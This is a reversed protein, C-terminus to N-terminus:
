RASRVTAPERVLGELLEAARGPGPAANLKEALRRANERYQPNSLVEALAARLGAPTCRTPSLRVGVGAEVVRQANDPKDWTTPVVVLPVGARLAAMVTAPGGTTVVAACRPLMDTHSLWNRVRINPALEGLGLEDVSRHHGTTMIVEMPLGALGQAAARLIFPDGYRLTSETVHVWPYRSPITNLWEASSPDSPPHWICPGVYQVNSPIDRRGYDLEPINGVLYLPLKSTYNTVSCGLPRLGYTSRLVDVRRRLGFSALDAARALSAGVLRAVRTKPSPLGFGPPPSDRGPILPGMFTSSLALPISTREWLVVIPGWMSLDTIIVDPHWCKLIPELDAVQGPITEVLWERFTQRTLRLSARGSPSSTEVTRINALARGEDVHQMPFVEFGAPEITERATEGTYFAVEHGRNRLAVAISMQPLLHGIFPWCTILFRAM